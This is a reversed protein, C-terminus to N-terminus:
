RLMETPLREEFREWGGVADGRMYMSLLNAIVVFGAKVLLRDRPNDGHKGGHVYNCRVQYVCSLVENLSKMKSINRVQGTKVNRVGQLALADIAAGYPPLQELLIAHCKNLM